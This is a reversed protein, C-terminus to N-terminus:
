VSRSNFGPREACPDSTMGSSWAVSRVSCTNEAVFFLVLIAVARHGHHYMGRPTPTGEGPSRGGRLQVVRLCNRPWFTRNFPPGIFPPLSALLWCGAMCRTFVLELFFISLM